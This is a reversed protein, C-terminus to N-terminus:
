DSGYCRNGSVRNASLSVGPAAVVCNSGIGFGGAQNDEIRNLQARAPREAGSGLYIASRLLLPQEPAYACLAASSPDGCRALNLRRMRNRRVQHREGIVFIGGFRMGEIDNQEVVIEESRMDPNTNNMVLAYGGFPYASAGNRNICMNRTVEGHHFGDLDICKGNTEEIRNGIYVSRDVNGATDIGVPIAGNEIDVQDVPYGTSRIVNGEVRVRTAHGIQIADRGITDFRNGWILGDENRASAYLSHTWVANGRLNRFTSASVHFGRTGEEILIGGTTNNRGMANRSGSDEVTLRELRLDRCGSALVAFGAVRRFRVDAITVDRSGSVAIANGRTFRSFPVDSPPLGTRQEHIERMGDIALNRFTVGSSGEVRFLSAGQFRRGAKLLTGNGSIELNGTGAPIVIERHLEMEGAALQLRAGSRLAMRLGAEDRIVITPSSGCGTHIAGALWILWIRNM